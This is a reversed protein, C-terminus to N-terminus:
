DFYYNVGIKTVPVNIDQFTNASDYSKRFSGGVIGEIGVKKNIQYEGGYYLDFVYLQNHKYNESGVKEWSSSVISSFFTDVYITRGSYLRGGLSITIRDRNPAVDDSRYGSYRGGISYRIENSVNSFYSVDWYPYLSMGSKDGNNEEAFINGSLFFILFILHTLKM